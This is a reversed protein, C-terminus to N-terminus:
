WIWSTPGSTMGRMRAPLTSQRAAILLDPWVDAAQQLLADAKGTDGKIIRRAAARLALFQEYGEVFDPTDTPDVMRDPAYFWWVCLGGADTGGSLWLERGVVLYSDTATSFEEESRVEPIETGARELKFPRRFGAPLTWVGDSYGTAQSLDPTLKMYRRRAVTGCLRDATQILADNLATDIQEPLHFDDDDDSDILDRVRARLQQLTEV